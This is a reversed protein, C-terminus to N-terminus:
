LFEDAGPVVAGGGVYRARLWRSRIAGRPATAVWGMGVALAAREASAGTALMRAARVCDVCADCAIAHAHTIASVARVEDDTADTFALPVTRM